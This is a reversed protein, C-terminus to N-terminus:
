KQYRTETLTGDKACQLLMAICATAHALHPLNSEPDLDEGDQYALVHRLCAAILRHNPFGKRFNYRGYKQEGFMLAKATAEILVLPVLSLDAKSSDHKTGGTNHRRNMQELIQATTSYDTGDPHQELGIDIVM